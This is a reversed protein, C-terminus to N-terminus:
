IQPSEFVSPLSIRVVKGEPSTELVLVFLFPFFYESSRLAVFVYVRLGVIVIIATLGDFAAATCLAATSSAALLHIGRYRSKQRSVSLPPCNM